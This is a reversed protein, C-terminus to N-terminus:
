LEWDRDESHVPSAELSTIFEQEVFIEPYDGEEFKKLVISYAESKNRAKVRMGNFEVWFYELASM